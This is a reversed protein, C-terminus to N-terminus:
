MDCEISAQPYAMIFNCQRLAWGCLIGIVILLRTSFWNVVPAFAEYYNM